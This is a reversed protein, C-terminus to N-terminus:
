RVRVYKAAKDAVFLLQSLVRRHDFDKSRGKVTLAIDPSEDNRYLPVAMCTTASGVRVSYHQQRIQHLHRSLETARDSDGGWEDLLRRAADTNYALLVRGAATMAACERGNDDSPTWTGGHGHGRHTFVVAAGKLIALSATLGTKLLLDGLFPAFDRLAQSLPDTVPLDARRQWTTEYRTGVRNVMGSEALDGLLRHTTSKALGTRRSLESLRVAGGATELEVLLSIAKGIAGPLQQMDLQQTDM